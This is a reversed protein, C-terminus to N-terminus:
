FDVKTGEDTNHPRMYINFTKAPFFCKILLNVDVIQAKKQEPTSTIKVEFGEIMKGEGKLPTLFNYIDKKITDLLRNNILIFTQKNLYHAVNKTIYDYTRRVAYVNQNEGKFLTSDGMFRVMGDWDIAPIVNKDVLATVDRQNARFRVHDVGTVRGHKYGASPQQIGVGNDNKYVLGALASSPSIWLDSDEYSTKARGLLYNAGICVFAKEPTSGALNAYVPDNLFEMAEQSSDFDPLDTFVQVKNQEGLQSFRDLTQVDELFGPVVLISFCESLSFSRFPDQIYNSMEEFKTRDDPDCLEAMSSNVFWVNIGDDPENQANMFFRDIGRYTTELHKVTELITEMNQSLASEIKTSEESASKQIQTLDDSASLARKWVQLRKLLQKRSLAYDPKTLFRKRQDPKKSDLYEPGPIVDGDATRLRPMLVTIKSFEGFVPLIGEITNDLDEVTMEPVAPEVTAVSTEEEPLVEPPELTKEEETM